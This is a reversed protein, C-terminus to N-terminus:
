DLVFLIKPRSVELVSSAFSVGYLAPCTDQWFYADMAEASRLPQQTM